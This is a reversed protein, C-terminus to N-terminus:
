LTERKDGSKVPLVITFKTGQGVKSEARIDGGHAKIIKWAISLGLGTGNQKTSYFPSFIRGLDQAPIGTGNDEIEVAAALACGYLEADNGLTESAEQITIRRCRVTVCTDARGAELGNKVLNFIAQRFLQPDIEVNLNLERDYERNIGGLYGNHGHEETFSDLAADIYERLNVRKKHVEEHRAFALLTEITQNINQVGAVIKEAMEKKAPDDKLDRALLSAFGGVGGLPSRIEHAVSAAMEGLGALIKMRSLQEEMRRIGSIDHFLEVAGVTEGMGNKLISTSVSLILVLGSAIKVKKEAGDFTRGSRITEMASFERGETATIIEEYRIDARRHIEKELGLLERAAPNLHTVRGTKDIAIVGSALSTLIGNLFETVSRNDEMASQLAQNTAQLKESQRAYTERLTLYQRQLRNIIKNFSSYTETFREIEGTTTPDTMKRDDM